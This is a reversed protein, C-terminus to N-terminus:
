PLLLPLKPTRPFRNFGTGYALTEVTTELEGLSEQTNVM